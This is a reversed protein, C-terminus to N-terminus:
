GMHSEGAKGAVRKFDGMNTANCPIGFIKLYELKTVEDGGQNDVVFVVLNSVNQFKVFRLPIVKEGTVDEPELVLKQVGEMREGSDFDVENPQNMFIKVTKPATGDAPARIKLSHVKVPQNFTITLMLQEDCDSELYKADDTFVNKHTNEDSENLCNCGASVLFQHLDAYGPVEEEAGSGSAENGKTLEQIKAILKQPDAGRVQGLPQQNRVFFFTPMAEINFRESTEKCVDVDVKLFVIDTYKNSLQEYVPAIQKCPGCWKAHFDIVVLKDGAALVAPVFDSDSGIVKVRSM